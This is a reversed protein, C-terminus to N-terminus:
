RLTELGRSDRKFELVHGNSSLGKFQGLLDYSFATEGNPTASSPVRKSM